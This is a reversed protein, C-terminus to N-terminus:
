LVVVFHDIDILLGFFIIAALTFLKRWKMEQMGWRKWYLAALGGTVLLHVEPQAM